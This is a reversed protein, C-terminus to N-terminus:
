GLTQRKTTSFTQYISKNNLPSFTSSDFVIYARCSNSTVHRTRRPRALTFNKVEM